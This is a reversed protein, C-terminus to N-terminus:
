HASASGRDPPMAPLRKPFGRRTGAPRGNREGRVITVVTRVFAQAPRGFGSAPGAAFLIRPQKFETVAIESLSWPPWVNM